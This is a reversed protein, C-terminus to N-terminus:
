KLLYIVILFKDHNNFSAYIGNMWEMQNSVWVPGLSSYNSELLGLLDDKNIEKKIDPIKNEIIVTYSFSVSKLGM